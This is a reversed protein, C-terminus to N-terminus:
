EFLKTASADLASFPINDTNPIAMMPMLVAEVRRPMSEVLNQCVKPAVTPLLVTQMNPLKPNHM